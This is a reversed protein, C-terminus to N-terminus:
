NVVIVGFVAKNLEDYYGYEGPTQFVLQYEGNAPIPSTAGFLTKNKPDGIPQFDKKSKNKFIVTDGINLSLVSPSFGEDTYTIEKTQPAKSLRSISTNNEKPTSSFLNRQVAQKPWFFFLLIIVLVILSLIIYYQKKM